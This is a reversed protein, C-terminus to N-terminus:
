GQRVQRHILPLIVRFKTGINVESEVSITGDLKTVIYKVTSLGIGIGRCPKKTTFFQDFIHPLNEPPIGIGNDCITISLSEETMKDTGKKIEANIYVIRTRDDHINEYSDIANSVLNFLVYHIDAPEFPICGIEKGPRNCSVSCTRANFALLNFANDLEGEFSCNKETMPCGISTRLSSLYCNFRKIALCMKQLSENSERIEKEGPLTSLKEIYSLMSQIPSILDHFLGQSLQGFEAISALESIHKEQSQKLEATREAVRIELANRERELEKESTEARALSKAMKWRSIWSLGFMFVIIGFFAIFDTLDLNGNQWSLIEPHNMEHSSLYFIAAFSAVMIAISTRIGFLLNTVGMTLAFCLVTEPLSAGWRYGCYFSGCFFLVIVGCASLRIYGRRSMIFLLIFVAIISAFCATHACDYNDKLGLTNYLVVLFLMTLFGITPLIIANLITEMERENDRKRQISIFVARVKALATITRAKFIDIKSKM